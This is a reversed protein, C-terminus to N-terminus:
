PVLRMGYLRRGAFAYNARRRIEAKQETNQGGPSYPYLVRVADGVNLEMALSLALGGQSVNETKSVEEQGHPGRVLIPQKMGVRRDQRQDEPNVAVQPRPPPTVAAASPLEKAQRTVESHVWDTLRNCNSCQREVVGTSKLAEAEPTTLSSFVEKHCGQCRILAGTQGSLPPGFEIGWIDRGPELCELGWEQIDQGSGAIPAVVRFDAERHNELNILHLTDNAAIRHQLAIRAGSRNVLSTRTDETFEGSTSRYGWVRVPISLMLRESSRKKEGAM